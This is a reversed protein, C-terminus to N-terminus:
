SEAKRYSYPNGFRTAVTVKHTELGTADLANFLADLGLRITTCPEAPRWDERVGERKMEYSM